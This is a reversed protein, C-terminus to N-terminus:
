TYGVTLTGWNEVIAGDTSTFVKQTNATVEDSAIMVWGFNYAAGDAWLQVDATVDWEFRAGSGTVLRTHTAVASYDVGSQGGNAGWSLLLVSNGDRYKWNAGHSTGPVTGNRIGEWWQTLCRHIGIGQDVGSAESECYLSVTASTIVAGMPISSIDAQLLARAIAATDKGARFVVSAGFNNNQDAGNVITTDELIYVSISGRGYGLGGVPGVRDGYNIPYCECESM